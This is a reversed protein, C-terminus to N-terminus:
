KPKIGPCYLIDGPKLPRNPDGGNWKIIQDVLAATATGYAARAAAWFTGEAPVQYVTEGAPGSGTTAALPWMGLLGLVGM